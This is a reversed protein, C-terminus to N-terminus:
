SGRRREWTARLFLDMGRRSRRERTSRREYM